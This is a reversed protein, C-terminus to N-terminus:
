EKFLLHFSFLLALSFVCLMAPITVQPWTLSVVGAWKGVLLVLFTLACALPVSVVFLLRKM